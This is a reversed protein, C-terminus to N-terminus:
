WLYESVGWLKDLKSCFANFVFGKEIEIYMKNKILESRFKSLDFSMPVKIFASLRQYIM